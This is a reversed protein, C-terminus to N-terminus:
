VTALKNNYWLNSIYFSYNTSANKQALKNATLNPGALLINNIETVSLAKSFYQLNSLNGNFGGNQSVYVGYYNQKPVNTFVYRGSIVGNVYVDMIKNEMRIAVHFWKGVPINSIDLVNRASTVDDMVVHLGPAYNTLPNSNSFYLGPGNSTQAVGSGDYDNSGKNFVNSYPPTTASSNKYLLWTSWTFELGTLQNNSRQIVPLKKDSPNQDIYMGTTGDILGKVIYPNHAPQMFYGMLYLGLKGLFVFVILVLIIFVFKAIISNSNLFSQSADVASKSSFEDLSNKVSTATNALSDYVTKVGNNISEGINGTTEKIPESM